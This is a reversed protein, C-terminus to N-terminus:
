RLWPVDMMKLLYIIMFWRYVPWKGYIYIHIYMYIYINFLWLTYYGFSIHRIHRYYKYAMADNVTKRRLSKSWRKRHPVSIGIAKAVLQHILGPVMWITMIHYKSAVVGILFGLAKNIWPQCEQNVSIWQDMIGSCYDGKGLKVVSM